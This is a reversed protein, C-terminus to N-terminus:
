TSSTTFGSTMVADYGRAGAYEEQLWEAAAEEIAEYDPAEFGRLDLRGTVADSILRTRYEALLSIENNFKGIVLDIHECQEGLRSVIALQESIQPLMLPANSLKEKTFHSITAKNCVSDIWGLNKLHFLWYYLFKISQKRSRVLHVSNQVYCDKLEDNWIASVGVDGGETVLLDGCKLLYQPLENQSFWMQKIPNLKVGSWKINAACMYNALVDNKASKNPQLMKGLTIDYFRGIRGNAWEGKGKTVELSVLVNKMEGLLAAQRRRSNILRNIRSVKWDLYRAIRDQEDRPPLLTKLSRFIEPYLRLRSKIVGTSYACFYNCIEPTRMLYHYYWPNCCDSLSFVAYAPSIVGDFRSIAQSGNWALMINMILDNKKVVSYGILSEAPRISVATGGKQSVGSYQSLSLLQANHDDNKTKRESFVVRNPVEKWGKPLEGYWAASM